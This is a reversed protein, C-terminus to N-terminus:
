VLFIFLIERAINKLLHTLGTPEDNVFRNAPVDIAAYFGPMKRFFFQRLQVRSDNRVTKVVMQGQSSQLKKLKEIKQICIAALHQRDTPDQCVLWELCFYTCRSYEVQREYGFSSDWDLNSNWGQRCPLAKPEILMCSM